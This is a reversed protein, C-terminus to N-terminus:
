RRDDDDGSYYTRELTLAVLFPAAATHKTEFDLTAVRKCPHPNKWTSAFLRIDDDAGAAENKGAWALKGRSPEEGDSSRWWDRVDAGYIIPIREETGDTYRLVYAGIETGDDAGFANGFMTSHLIHLTDFRAGIAIGRVADPPEPSRQGNVRILREGVQFMTGGLTQRGPALAALNNGTLDGFPENLHQNAKPQLDVFVLEVRAAPRRDASGPAVGLAGLALIAVMMGVKMMLKNREFAPVLRTAGWPIAAGAAFRVAARATADILPVPL